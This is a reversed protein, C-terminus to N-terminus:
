FLLQDIVERCRKEVRFGILVQQYVSLAVSCIEEVKENEVGEQM